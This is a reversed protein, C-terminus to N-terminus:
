VFGIFLFLSDRSGQPADNRKAVAGQTGGAHDGLEHRTGARTALGSTRVPHHYFPPAGDRRRLRPVAPQEDRCRARGEEGDVAVPSLLLSTSQLGGSSSLGLSARAGLRPSLSLDCDLWSCSFWLFLRVLSLSPRVLSLSPGWGPTYGEYIV